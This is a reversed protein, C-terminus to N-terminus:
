QKLLGETKCFEYGDDLAQGLRTLIDGVQEENIILPPCLCISDRSMRVILGYEHGREAVFAGVKGRPDFVEGREKNAVLEIAQLLGSGRAEGVLPHNAELRKLGAMLVKGMAVANGALGEEEIININELAVATALPHGSTTYGMGFNGQKASNDAIGQYIEDSIIVASLPVYSSTLQKSLVMIDPKIDYTECGFMNGTRGFGCIVEDVVVLIDYKRCLKQVKEWYTAPPPVVGGAGIVPEGIFAAITDPGEELIIEELEDILRSAFDEESEGPLGNHYHHPATTHIVPIIPMDFDTHVWPLGTLSGSALTVGHYGELRALFKKKKPRGIANNYYWVMKIVTDNAESGSNCFYTKSVSAPTITALKEALDVVAPHAKSSFNHYFPLKKMQKAATEILRQNNFGVAVSWLGSLGEIYEKGQNDYVYIGEGRDIIMPGDEENKRANTFSHIHYAVDRAEISNPKYTM